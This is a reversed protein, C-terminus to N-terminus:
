RDKLQCVRASQACLPRSSRSCASSECGQHPPSFGCLSGSGSAKGADACLWATLERINGNLFLRESAPHEKLFPARGNLPCFSHQCTKQHSEQKKKTSYVLWPLCGNIVWLSGSPVQSFRQTFAKKTACYCPHFIVGKPFDTSALSSYTHTHPPTYKLVLYHLQGM